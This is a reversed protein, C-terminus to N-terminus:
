SKSTGKRGDLVERFRWDIRDHFNPLSEAVVRSRAVKVFGCFDDHFLM